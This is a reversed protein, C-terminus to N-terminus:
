SSEAMDMDRCISRLNVKQKKCGKPQSGKQKETGSWSSAMRAEGEGRREGAEGGGGEASQPSADRDAERELAREAELLDGERVRREGLLTLEGSHNFVM